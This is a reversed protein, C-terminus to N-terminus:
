QSEPYMNECPRVQYYLTQEFDAMTGRGMRLPFIEVGPKVIVDTTVHTALVYNVVEVYLARREFPEDTGRAFMAPESGMRSGLAPAPANKMVYCFLLM